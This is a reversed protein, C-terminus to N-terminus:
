PATDFVGECKGNVCKCSTPAACFCKGGSEWQYNKNFCGCYCDGTKGFVICDDDNVCQKEIIKDEDECPEEWERLCKQKIQCWTYGASGICGHEDKDGGVIIEEVKTEAEQIDQNEEPISKLVWLIGVLLLASFILIIVTKNKAKMEEM